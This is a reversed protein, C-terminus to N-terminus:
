HLDPEFQTNRRGVSVVANILVQGTFLLGTYFVAKGPPVLPPDYATSELEQTRPM